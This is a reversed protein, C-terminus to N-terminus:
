QGFQVDDANDISTANYESAEYNRQCISFAVGQGPDDGGTCLLVQLVDRLRVLLPVAHGELARHGAVGWAVVLAHEEGEEALIYLSHLDARVGQAGAGEKTLHSSVRIFLCPDQLAVSLTESTTKV